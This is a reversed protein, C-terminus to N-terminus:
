FLTDLPSKQLSLSIFSPFISLVTIFCETYSYRTVSLLRRRFVIVSPFNSMWLRAATTLFSQRMTLCVPSLLFPCTKHTQSLEFTTWVERSQNIAERANSSLHIYNSLDLVTLGTIKAIIWYENKGSLKQVAFSANRLLLTRHQTIYYILCKRM